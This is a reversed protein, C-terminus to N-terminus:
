WACTHTHTHTQSCYPRKAFFNDNPPSPPIHGSEGRYTGDNDADMKHELYEGSPRMYRMM